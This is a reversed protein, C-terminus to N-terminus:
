GLLSLLTTTPEPLQDMEPPEPPAEEEFEDNEEPTLGYKQWVGYLLRYDGNKLYERNKALIDLLNDYQESMDEEDEDDEDYYNYDSYGDNVYVSYDMHCSISVIVRYKKSNVSVGMDDTGDFEYQKIERIKEPETNFAM